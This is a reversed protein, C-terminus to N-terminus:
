ACSVPSSSRCRLPYRMRASCGLCSWPGASAHAGCPARSAPVLGSSEVVVDAWVAAVAEDNHSDLIADRDSPALGHADIAVIEAAGQRRGVAVALAGSPGPRSCRSAPLGTQEAWVTGHWRLPSRSPQRACTSATRCRAWCARRCLSAARSPATATRSGLDRLRSLRRGDGFARDSTAVKFAIGDASSVWLMGAPTGTQSTPIGRLLELYCARHDGTATLM